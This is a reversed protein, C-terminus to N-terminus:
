AKVMVKATTTRGEASIRVVYVGPELGRLCNETMSAVKAGQLTYVEAFDFDGDIVIAGPITIVRPANAAAVDGVGSNIVGEHNYRLVYANTNPAEDYGACVVVYERGERVSGYGFELEGTYTKRVKPVFVEYMFDEENLDIDHYYKDYETAENYYVAWPKSNDSPKVCFEATYTDPSGYKENSEIGLLDIVLSLDESNRPLTRFEATYTPSTKNGGDDVLYAYVVYDTDWKRPSVKAASCLSGDVESRTLVAVAYEWWEWGYWLADQEWAPKNIQEYINEAGGIEEVTSKKLVGWYYSRGGEFPTVTVHADSITPDTVDIALAQLNPDITSFEVLKVPTSASAADVGVVVAYMLANSKVDPVEIAQVGTYTNAMANIVVYKAAFEKESKTGPTLDYKDAEHKEVCFVTYPDNNSPTVNVTVKAKHKGTPDDSYEIAGVAADFTNDSPEPTLTTFYVVKTPVTVNFETDLAFAYVAYETGAMLPGDIKRMAGSTSMEKMIVQLDMGTISSFERWADLTNTIVQEPGVADYLEREACNWFYMMEDDAPTINIFAYGATINDVSIELGEVKDNDSTTFELVMGDTLEVSNGTIEQGDATVRRIFYGEAAEWSLATSEEFLKIENTGANLQIEKEEDGPVPSDYLHMHEPNSVKVTITYAVLDTIDSVEITADDLLTMNYYGFYTRYLVEGNLRVSQASFEYLPSPYLDIEDGAKCPLSNGDFDTRQEGNVDVREFVNSFGDPYTFSLTIDKDPILAAIDVVCDQSLPITYGGYEMAVPEGDVTVSYLPSYNRSRVILETENEPSFKVNNSGAVLDVTASTGSLKATIRTPDDVNVTCSATRTEDLNITSIIFKKGADSKVIYKYWSNGGFYSDDRNGNEDTVNNIQYPSIGSCELSNYAEIEIENDGQSLVHTVRDDDSDVILKVQNDGPVNVTVKFASASMTLLASLVVMM